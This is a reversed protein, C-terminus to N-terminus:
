SCIRKQAKNVFECARCVFSQRGFKTFSRDIHNRFKLTPFISSNFRWAFYSQFLTPNNAVMELYNALNAVSPFSNVHIFSHPAPAYERANPAGFYVMVTQGMKFGEFFMETVYDDLITNEMASCFM